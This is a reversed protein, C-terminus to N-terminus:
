EPIDYAEKVRRLLGARNPVISGYKIYVYFEYAKNLGTWDYRDFTERLNDLIEQVWVNGVTHQERAWLYLDLRDCVKLIAREATGLHALEPLGFERLIAGETTDVKSSEKATSPTDGVLCEPVDHALAFIVLRKFEQPFLYYMLMAVGWSHEANTYPMSHRLTHCRTVAGGGRALLIQEVPNLELKSM